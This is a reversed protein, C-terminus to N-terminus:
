IVTFRGVAAGQYKKTVLVLFFEDELFRFDSRITFLLLAIQAIFM